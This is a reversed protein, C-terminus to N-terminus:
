STEYKIFGKIARKLFHRDNVIASVAFAFLMIMGGVLQVHTVPEFFIYWAVLCGIVPEVIGDYVAAIMEDAYRSALQVIAYPITTFAIVELLLLGQM